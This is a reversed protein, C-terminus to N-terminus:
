CTRFRSAFSANAAQAIFVSVPADRPVGPAAVSLECCSKRFEGNGRRPHRAKAVLDERAELSLRKLRPVVSLPVPYSKTQPAARHM